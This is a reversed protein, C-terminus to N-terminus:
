TPVALVPCPSGNLIQDLTSGLFLDALHDRGRSVMAILDADWEQAERTLTDDVNGLPLVKTEWTWGPIELRENLPPTTGVHVERCIGNAAGATAILRAAATLAPAAGPDHDIAILVRQLGLRGNDLNVLSKATGPFFLAPRKAARMSATAVEQHLIRSLGLRAHTGLVLLESEQREVHTHIGAVPDSSNTQLKKITLGLDAVAERPAGPPLLGWHSLTQRVM